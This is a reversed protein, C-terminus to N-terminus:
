TIKDGPKAGDPLDAGDFTVIRHPRDGGGAALIMGESLGFKMQRPKLNAVVAVTRGVLVAPDPYYSRLGTFIQRLRGEGLDVMLKLLKDAGPVLGAERVLGVRLDVLGLDEISIESPPPAPAAKPAPKAEKAAKEPKVAPKPQPKKNEIKAWSDKLGVTRNWIPKGPKSDLDLCFYGVREFQVRTGPKTVTALYPEMLAGEVRVVSEPNVEDIFSKGETTGPSEVSFLRDYLRVEAPVAHAASVWQLTGRVARGDPANGGWSGPDWTCRLETVEGKADKIVDTCRVLCAYRLRVERGPGLRFWDKPPDERFDDHDVYLVRSFPIKRTGQAADEPHLPAELERTEGEPFNEIVVKLPRLVTMVRPSRRNLDERLAHELLGVDVTSDTKAVGIRECFARIAEPTYGRRRLGALTPMRPDDWGTVVKKQVLEALKRKSMVTFTLNLRAFEIQQSPFVETQEICWDYLPRHSEFELTCISHTIKEMADSIPHAYDYMPYICWKTGTRHHPAYRIRYLVPDRMNMNQTELDIKARLVHAGEPFEGARMRRFLDLSEAVPRDRYPSPKGKKYFDGRYERIEEESLSDVYADGKEILKEALRYIDEFYDSAYFMASWDFGLWRIDEQIAEVYEVDETTPNTDDFRLNCTGGFEKALGFDVCIAKAHGIHLYGNPEPPFRTAVRGGFKSAQGDALIRDRVFNGATEGAKKSDATSM